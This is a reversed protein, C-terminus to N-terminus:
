LADRLPNILRIAGPIVVATAPTVGPAEGDLDVYAREGNVSELRVERGRLATVKPHHIHEGRYIKRLLMAETLFNAKELILVDLLGDALRAMPAIWMGGGSYQGNAVMVNSVPHDGANVGDVTVRVVPTRYTLSTRATALFFTAKGGLRKSSANAVRCVLGGMGFSAMNIYHQTLAEADDSYFDVRVVDVCHDHGHVLAAASTVIDRGSSLLRRFDGGTGAPLVGLRVRDPGVGAGMIGNVVENLTGDGGMALLTEKGGAIAQRALSSAEGPGSTQVADIEGLIACVQSYIKEWQAGVRGAAATPNAIILSTSPDFTTQTM